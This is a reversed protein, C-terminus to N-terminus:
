RAMSALQFGAAAVERQAQDPSDAIEERQRAGRSSLPQPVLERTSSWSFESCARSARLCSWHGESPGPGAGLLEQCRCPWLLAIGALPRLWRDWCGPLHLSQWSGRASLTFQPLPLDCQPPGLSKPSPAQRMGIRPEPITPRLGM